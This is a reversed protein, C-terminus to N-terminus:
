ESKESQIRARDTEARNEFDATLKDRVVSTAYKIQQRTHFYSHNASHGCYPCNCQQTDQLGTGVVIKFHEKCKPCERGTYGSRSRAVPVRIQRRNKFRM